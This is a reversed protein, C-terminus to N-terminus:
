GRVVVAPAREYAEAPVVVVFISIAGCMAVVAADDTIVFIRGLPRILEPLM